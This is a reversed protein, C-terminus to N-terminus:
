YKVLYRDFFPHTFTQPVIHGVIIESVSATGRFDLIDTLGGGTIPGVFERHNDNIIM